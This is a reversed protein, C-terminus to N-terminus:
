RVSFCVPSCDFSDVSCFIYEGFLWIFVKTLFCLWWVALYLSQVIFLSMSHGSAEDSCGILVRLCFSLFDAKCYFAYAQAIFM